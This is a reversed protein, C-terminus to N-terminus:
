LSSSRSSTNRITIVKCLLGLRSIHAIAYYVKAFDILRERKSPDALKFTTQSTKLPTLTRLDNTLETAPM